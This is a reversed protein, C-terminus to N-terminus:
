VIKLKHAKAILDNVKNVKLKRSMNKRHTNVTHISVNIEESIEKSSHGKVILKLVEIERESLNIPNCSQVNNKSTLIYGLAKDCFFKEGHAVALLAKLVEETHCCLFIYGDVSAPTFFDKYANKEQDIMLIKLSPNNIRLKTLAHSNKILDPNCVLLNCNKIDAFKELANLTEFHAKIRFDNLGSVIHKLGENVIYSTELICVSKM